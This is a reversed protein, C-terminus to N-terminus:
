KYDKEDRFIEHTPKLRSVEISTYGKSNFESNDVKHLSEILNILKKLSILTKITVFSRNDLTRQIQKKYKYVEINNLGLLDFIMKQTWKFKSKIEDIKEVIKKCGDQVEQKSRKKPEKLYEQKYRVEIEKETLGLDSVKKTEDLSLVPLNLEGTTYLDTKYIMCLLDKLSKLTGRTAKGKVWNKRQFTKKYKEILTQKEEEEEFTSEFMTTQTWGLKNKIHEIEIFAEKCKTQIEQKNM